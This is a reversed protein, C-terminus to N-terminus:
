KRKRQAERTLIMMGHRGKDNKGKRITEQEAWKKQERYAQWTGKTAGKSGDKTGLVADCRACTSRWAETAQFIGNSLDHRIM